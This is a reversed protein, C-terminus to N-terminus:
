QQYFDGRIVHLHALNYGYLRIARVIVLSHRWSSVTLTRGADRTKTTFVVCDDPKIKRFQIM